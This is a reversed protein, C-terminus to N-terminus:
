PTAPRLVFDQPKPQRLDNLATEAQALAADLRDVEVQKAKEFQDAPIAKTVWAPIRALQVSRWREFFLKNKGTVRDHLLHAQKVAPCPNTALSVGAALEDATWTGVVNTASLLQWAGPKLNKVTLTYRNLDQLATFGPVGLALRSDEPISWPLCQDRRTIALADGNKVVEAKCGESAIVTGKEGDLELTSVLSPAKLGKLIAAAMVFHGHFNPHVADPIFRPAQTAGLVGAKRGADICAIFPSFQDVLPIGTQDSVEKLANCYKQLINNYGSGGPQGEEYKEEPSPTLLIVRTGLNTLAGILTLAREKYAPINGEGSRGDNMGMNILAIAPKLPLVDRKFGAEQGGRQAFGMTDGSWGINRFSLKWDPFRTLLFSEVFTTYAHQETISDGIFVVPTDGDRFPFAQPEVARAPLALCLPLLVSLLTRNM